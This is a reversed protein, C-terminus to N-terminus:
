VVKGKYEVLGVVRASKAIYENNNINTTIGCPKVILIQPVGGYKLCAKRAYKAASLKSTTFYVCDLHKKRWEERLVGTEVPARLESVIGLATTTGHYYM